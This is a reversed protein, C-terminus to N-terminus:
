VRAQPPQPTPQQPVSVPAIWSRIELSVDAVIEGSYERAALAMMPCESTRHTRGREDRPDQIRVSRM